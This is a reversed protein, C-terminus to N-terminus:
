AEAPDAWELQMVLFITPDAALRRLMQDQDAVGAVLPYV